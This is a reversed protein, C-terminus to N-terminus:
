RWLYHEAVVNERSHGLAESVARLAARDYWQGSMSKRGCYRESPPLTKPDRAIADYMRRAYDARYAHIDAATSVHEWPHGSGAATMRDVVARVEEPSGIVPLERYRGGKGTVAIAYNGDGRDILDTGRIQQLEKYNRVGTSKCFSVLEANKEESFHKDRVCSERSRSIDEIRRAPLDYDKASVDLVKAVGSFYTRISWASMVTGDKTGPRQKLSELYQPLYEKAEYFTRPRHGNVRFEDRKMSACFDEWARKYTHLTTDSYIKGSTKEPTQKDAHKSTGKGAAFFSELRQLGQYKVSNTKERSGYM